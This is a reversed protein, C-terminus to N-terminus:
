AYLINRAAYYTLPTLMFEFTFSARCIRRPIGDSHQSKLASDCLRLTRLPYDARDTMASEAAIAIHSRSM